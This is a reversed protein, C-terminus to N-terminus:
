KFSFQGTDVFEVELQHDIQANTSFNLFFCILLNEHLM